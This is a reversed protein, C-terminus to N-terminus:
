GALALADRRQLEMQIAGLLQTSRKSLGVGPIASKLALNLDVDGLGLDGMPQPEDRRFIRDWQERMRAVPKDSGVGLGERVKPVEGWGEGQFPSPALSSGVNGPGAELPSNQSRSAMAIRAPRGLARDVLYRAAPVNGDKAMSVLKAIVDQLADVIMKEAAGAENPYRLATPSVNPQEAVNACMSTM